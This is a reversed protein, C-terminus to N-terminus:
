CHVTESKLKPLTSGKGLRARMLFTDGFFTKRLTVKLKKKLGDLVLFSNVWVVGEGICGGESGGGWGVM